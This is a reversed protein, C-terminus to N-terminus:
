SGFHRPSNVVVRTIQCFRTLSFLFLRQKLLTADGSFVVVVVSEVGDDDGERHDRSVQYSSSKRGFSGDGPRRSRTGVVGGGVMAVILKSM